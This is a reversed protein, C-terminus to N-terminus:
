AAGGEESVPYAAVFMAARDQRPPTTEDPGVHPHAAEEAADESGILDPHALPAPPRMLASRPAYLPPDPTFFTTAEGEEDDPKPVSLATPPTAITDRNEELELEEESEAVSLPAASVVRKEARRELVRTASDNVRAVTFESRVARLQQEAWGQVAAVTRSLEGHERELRGVRSRIRAVRTTLTAQAVLLLLLVVVILVSPQM